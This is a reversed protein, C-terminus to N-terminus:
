ENFVAPENIEDEGTRVAQYLIDPFKNGAKTFSTRTRAGESNENETESHHNSNNENENEQSM